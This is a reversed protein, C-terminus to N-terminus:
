YNDQLLKLCFEKTITIPHTSSNDYFVSDAALDVISLFREKLFKAREVITSTDVNRNRTSARDIAVDINCFVFVIKIDYGHDRARAIMDFIAQRAFGMDVVINVQRAIASPFLHDEAISRAYLEWRRRALVRGLERFDNVYQPLGEMIVDPNHEYPLTPTVHEAKFREVLTSKGSGPIGAMSLLSPSLQTQLGPPLWLSRAHEIDEVTPVHAKSNM